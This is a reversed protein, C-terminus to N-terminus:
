HHLIYCHVKLVFGVDDGTMVCGVVDGIVVDCGVADGSVACGVAAGVEDGVSVICGVSDGTSSCLYSYSCLM